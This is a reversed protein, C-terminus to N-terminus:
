DNDGGRFIATIIVLVVIVVIFAKLGVPDM